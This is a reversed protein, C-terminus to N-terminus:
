KAGVISLKRKLLYGLLRKWNKPRAAEAFGLRQGMKSTSRRRIRFRSESFLSQIEDSTFHYPHPKDIASLLDRFPVLPRPFINVVLYVKGGNRLVRYAESLIRSPDRAHDLVNCLIVFDICDNPLPLNEGVGSVTSTNSFVGIRMEIYDFVLPEIGIKQSADEVYHIIGFPGCGIELVRKDKFDDFSLGDESLFDAWYQKSFHSHVSPGQEWWEKESRQAELWRQSSEIDKVKNEIEVTAFSLAIVDRYAGLEDELEKRRFGALLYPTAVVFWRLAFGSIAILKLAYFSLKGYTKLYFYYMSEYKRVFSERFITKRSQGWHHTIRVLPYFYIKWGGKKIRYCWDLDEYDLFINDDLMGINDITDRRILFCCGNIYDVERIIGDHIRFEGAYKGLFRGLLKVSWKGKPLFTKLRFIHAFATGLHSMVQPSPALTGDSNVVECGMGGAKPHEEMFHVMAELTGPYVETDPNLLLVYRGSSRKIALNNGRAFGLNEKNAILKVQPFRTRVMESSGDNSANDVVFVEFSIEPANTCISDLCRTLFDKANYNVIIISLDM